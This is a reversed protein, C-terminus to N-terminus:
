VLNLRSWGVPTLHLQSNPRKVLWRQMVATINPRYNDLIIRVDQDDPDRDEIFCDGRLVLVARKFAITEVGGGLELLAVAVQEFLLQLLGPLFTICSHM